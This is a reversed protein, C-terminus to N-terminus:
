APMQLGMGFFNAAVTNFALIPQATVFAKDVAM